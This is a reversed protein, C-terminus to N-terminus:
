GNCVLKSHLTFFTSLSVLKVRAYDRDGKDITGSTGVEGDQKKTTNSDNAGATGTEASGSGGRAGIVTRTTIAVKIDLGKGRVDALSFTKSLGLSKAVSNAEELKAHLGSLYPTADKCSSSNPDSVKTPTPQGLLSTM